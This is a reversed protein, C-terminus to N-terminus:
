VLVHARGHKLRKSFLKRIRFCHGVGWREGAVGWWCGVVRIRGRFLDSSSASGASPHVAIDRPQDLGSSILICRQTGDLNSVEIRKLLADTWYLMRTQWDVALAVPTGINDTILPRQNSGQSSYPVLPSCSNCSYNVVCWSNKIYM